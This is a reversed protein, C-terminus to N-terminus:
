NRRIGGIEAPASGREPPLEKKMVLMATFLAYGPLSNQPAMLLVARHYCTFMGLIILIQDQTGPPTNREGVRLVSVLEDVPLRVGDRIRQIVM